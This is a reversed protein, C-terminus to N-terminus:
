NGALCLCQLFYKGEINAHSRITAPVCVHSRLVYYSLPFDNACQSVRDAKIIDKCARHLRSAIRVLWTPFITIIRATLFEHIIHHILVSNEFIFRSVDSFVSLLLVIMFINIPFCFQFNIGEWKLFEYDTPCKIIPM